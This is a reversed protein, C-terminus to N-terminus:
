ALWPVRRFPQALVRASECIGKILGDGRHEFRYAIEHLVALKCATLYDPTGSEILENTGATYTIKYYDGTTRLTKFLVGDLDYNATEVTEGDQDVFATVEDVPGYPLEQGGLENKIVATVSKEVLSIGTFKEIAVRCQPILANLYTDYDTNDAEIFLHAKVELLTVLEEFGEADIAVTELVANYLPRSRKVDTPWNRTVDM